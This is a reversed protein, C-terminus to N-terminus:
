VCMCQDSALLVKAMQLLDFVQRDLYEDNLVAEHPDMARKFLYIDDEITFCLMYQNEWALANPHWGIHGKEQFLDSVSESMGLHYVIDIKSSDTGANSVSSTACMIHPNYKETEEDQLFLHTHFAKEEKTM